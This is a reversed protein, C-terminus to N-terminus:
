NKAGATALWHEEEAQEVIMRIDEHSLDPFLVRALATRKAIGVKPATFRTDAILMRVKAALKKKRESEEKALREQRDREVSEKVAEIEEEFDSLWDAEEVIGHLIGDCMLGLGLRCTEGDRSRWQKVLAKLAKQERIWDEDQDDLEIESIAEEKADFTTTVLYVLRPRIHRVLAAFGAAEVAVAVANKSIDPIAPLVKAGCEDAAARVEEAWYDLKTMNQIPRRASASLSTEKTASM